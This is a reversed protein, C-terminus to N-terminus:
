VFISELPQEARQLVDVVYQNGTEFVSRLVFYKEQPMPPRSIKSFEMVLVGPSDEEM